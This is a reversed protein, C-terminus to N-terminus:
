AFKLYADRLMQIARYARTKIVGVSCDHLEAIEEYKLGWFRSMILVERYGAPMKELIEHLLQHSDNEMEYSANAANELPIHDYKRQTQLGSKKVNTAIAYLWIKFNGGERYSERYKILRM